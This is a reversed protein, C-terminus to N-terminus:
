GAGIEEALGKKILLTANEFPLSAVDETNFPGYAKMDLGVLSPVDKLFRLVLYKRQLPVEMHQIRGQVLNAAFTQYRETLALLGNLLRQEETTLLDSTVREDEVTKQLLKKYRRLLVDQLMRKVRRLESKLLRAKVTRKDLMRTEERFKKVYDAVRMYFDPPLKELDQSEIEKRWVEFLENYM